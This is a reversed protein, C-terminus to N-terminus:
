DLREIAFQSLQIVSRSQDSTSVTSVMSLADLVLVYIIIWYNGPRGKLFLRTYNQGPNKGEDDFGVQVKFRM